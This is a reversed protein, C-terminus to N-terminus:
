TKQLQKKFLLTFILIVACRIVSTELIYGHLIVSIPTEVECWFYFALFSFVVNDVISSMFVSIFNCVSAWIKGIKVNRRINEESNTANEDNMNASDENSYFMVDTRRVKDFFWVNCLQSVLFAAISACLIRLSPVFLRMMAQYNLYAQQTFVDGELVFPKHMLSIILSFSFFTYVIFSLRISKKAEDKGYKSSIINNALFTTTFLVTGLPLPSPLMSYKSIHLVQINALCVAVCNYTCLGASGAIKHSLHLFALSALLTLVSCVEPPFHCGVQILKQLINDM